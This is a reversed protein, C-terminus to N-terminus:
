AEKDWATRAERAQEFQQDAWHDRRSQDCTKCDCSTYDGTCGVHVRTVAKMLALYDM